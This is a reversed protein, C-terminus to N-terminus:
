WPIDEDAYPAPATTPEPCVHPADDLWAGVQGDRKVRYVVGDAGCLQCRGRPKHEPWDPPAVGLLEHWPCRPRPNHTGHKRRVFECFDVEQALAMDRLTRTLVEAPEEYSMGEGSEAWEELLRPLLLATALADGAAGHADVAIGRRLCAAALSKEPRFRDLEKVLVCADLWADLPVWRTGARRSASRGWVFDAPVNYAVSVCGALAAEVQPAVGAWTPCGALDEDRLGTVRAAGESMPREPDVRAHLVLRPLEGLRVHVVAVEAIGADPDLGTTEFDLVAFTQARLPTSM